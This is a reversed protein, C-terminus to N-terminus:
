FFYKFDETEAMYWKVGGRIKEIYKYGPNVDMIFNQIIGSRESKFIM